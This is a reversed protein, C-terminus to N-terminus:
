RVEPRFHSVKRGFMHELSGAFEDDTMYRAQKRSEQIQKVAEFNSYSALYEVLELRNNFEEREDEAIM